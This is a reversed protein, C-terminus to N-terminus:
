RRFKSRTKGRRGNDYSIKGRKDKHKNNNRTNEAKETTKTPPHGYLKSSKERIVPQLQDRDFKTRFLTVYKLNANVQGLKACLDWVLRCHRVDDIDGVTCLYPAIEEESVLEPHEIAKVNELLVYNPLNLASTLIRLALYVNELEKSKALCMVVSFVIFFRMEIKKDKFDAVASRWIAKAEKAVETNPNKDVQAKLAGLITTYSFRNLNLGPIEAAMDVISWLAEIDEKEACVKLAINFHYSNVVSNRQITLYTFLDVAQQSATEVNDANDALGNLLATFTYENPAVARKRMMNYYEFATSSKRAIM